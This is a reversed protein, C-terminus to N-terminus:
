RDDRRRRTMLIMAGSVFLVFSSPEPVLDYILIKGHGNMGGSDRVDSGILLQNNLVGIDVGFTDFDDPTPNRITQVLTTDFTEYDVQFYKVTGAQIHGELIEQTRVFLNHGEILLTAGFGDNASPEPNKITGLHAGTDLDFMYVEGVATNGGVDFGSDGVFLVGQEENIALSGFGGGPAIPNALTYQLNGTHDFVYVSGANPGNTDDNIATSLIKNRTTLIHWGFRDGRDPSPNAITRTITNSDLDFLHIFGPGSGGFGAQVEAIVITNTNSISQVDWGFNFGAGPNPNSITQLKLGSLRDYIHISGSNQRTADDGADGIVVYQLQDGALTGRGFHDGFSPTPNVFTHTLDSSEDFLYAAGANGIGSISDTRAGVLLVGGTTDFFVGFQDRGIPSVPKTIDGVLEYQGQASQPSYLILALLMGLLTRTM